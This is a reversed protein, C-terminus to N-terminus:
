ARARSPDVPGSVRAARLTLRRRKPATRRCLSASVSEAAEEQGFRTPAPPAGWHHQIISDTRTSIGYSLSAPGDNKNNSINTSLDSKAPYSLRALRAIRGASIVTDEKAQLWVRKDLGTPSRKTSVVCRTFSRSYDSIYGIVANRLYPPAACQGVELRRASPGPLCCLHVPVIKTDVKRVAGLFRIM